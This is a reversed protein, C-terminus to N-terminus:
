QERFPIGSIRIKVNAFPTDALAMGTADAQRQQCPHPGVIIAKIPLRDKSGEFLQIYPVLLGGKTRFGIEKPPQKMEKSKEAPVRPLAIRYEREEKFGGHKLFPIMLILKAIIEDVNARGTIESIDKPEFLVRLSEGAFGKCVNSDFVKEYQEYIVDNSRGGAYAFRASEARLLADLGEEDFEIAFGGSGGYGRWQSLLGDRFTESNEDHRCFSLVFLPTIKDVVSILSKYMAEAQLRHGHDGHAEYFGKILGKAALQPIIESIEKEFLPLVLTKAVAGESADNLYRYDTAWITRSSIIGLLGVANTYHFVSPMASEQLRM